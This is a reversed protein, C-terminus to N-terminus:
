DPTSRLFIIGLWVSWITGLTPDIILCVPVAFECIEVVGGIILIWCLLRPLRRTGLGASGVLVAAFGAATTAALILGIVIGSVARLASVDNAAMIQPVCLVPIIGGALWLGGAIAAGVLVLLMRQRAEAMHERLAVALVIAPVTFVANYLNALMFPAPKAAMAAIYAAISDPLAHLAAWGQSGDKPWAIVIFWLTLLFQFTLIFAAVAGIKRLQM